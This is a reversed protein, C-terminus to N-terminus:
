LAEIIDNEKHFLELRLSGEAAKIQATNGYKRRYRDFVPRLKYAQELSKCSAICKRLKNADQEANMQVQEVTLTEAPATDDIPFFTDDVWESVDKGRKLIRLLWSPWITIHM